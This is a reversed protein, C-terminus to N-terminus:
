KLTSPCVFNTVPINTKQIAGFGGLVDILNITDKGAPGGSEFSQSQGHSIQSVLFVLILYIIKM